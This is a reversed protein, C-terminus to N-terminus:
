TLEWLCSGYALKKIFWSASISVVPEPKRLKKGLSATTPHSHIIKHSVDKATDSTDNSLREDLGNTISPEKGYQAYNAPDACEGDHPCHLSEPRLPTSFHALLQNILSLSPISQVNSLCKRPSAFAHICQAQANEHIVAKAHYKSHVIGCM